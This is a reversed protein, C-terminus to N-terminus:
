ARMSMAKTTLTEKCCINRCVFSKYAASHLSLLLLRVDEQAFVAGFSYSPLATPSALSFSHTVQFGPANSLTKSLDARAGDFMFNALHVDLQTRTTLM